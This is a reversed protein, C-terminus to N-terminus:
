CTFHGFNLTPHYNTIDLFFIQNWLNDHQLKLVVNNYTMM